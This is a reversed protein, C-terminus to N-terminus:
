FYSFLPWGAPVAALLGLANFGAHLLVASRLRGDIAFVAGIALSPLLTLAGVLGQSAVMHSLAFACSAVVIASLSGKRAHRSWRRALADQLGARFVLEEVLPAGCLLWLTPGVDGHSTLVVALLLLGASTCWPGTAIKAAPWPQL